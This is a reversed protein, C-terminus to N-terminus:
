NPDRLTLGSTNVASFGYKINVIFMAGLMSFILSISVFAVFAGILLALGGRIELMIVLWQRPPLPVRKQKLLEGFAGPGRSWTAGYVGGWPDDSDTHSGM